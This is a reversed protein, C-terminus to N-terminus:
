HGTAPPRDMHLCPARNGDAEAFGIRYRRGVTRWFGTATDDQAATVWTYGDAASATTLVEAILRDGLGLGECEEDVSVKCLFGVRCPVCLQYSLRGIPQDGFYALVRAVDSATGARKHVLRRDAGHRPTM